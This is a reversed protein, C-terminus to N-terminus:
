HGAPVKEAIDIVREGVEIGNDAFWGQNVEVAYMAPGGSRHLDETLPAMDQINAITGDARVFAISLPIYTNRMYFALEPIESAWSFVMGEDEPMEQVWMLGVSREPGEDAIQVTLEVDDEGNDFTITTTELEQPDGAPAPSTQTAAQSTRAPTPEQTGPTAGPSTTTTLTPSVAPDSEADDDDGCAGLALTVVTVLLVVAFRRPKKSKV